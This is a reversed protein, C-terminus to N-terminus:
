ASRGERAFRERLEEDDDPLLKIAVTRRLLPDTALYVVGMGGAGLQESVEYRGIKAPRRSDGKMPTSVRNNGFGFATRRGDRDDDCAEWCSCSGSEGVEARHTRRHPTRAKKLLSRTRAFYRRYAKM